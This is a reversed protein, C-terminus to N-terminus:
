WRNKIKENSRSKFQLFEMGSVDPSVIKKMYYIRKKKEWSVM